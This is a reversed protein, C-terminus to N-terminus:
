AVKVRIKNNAPPAKIALGAMFFIIFLHSLQGTVGIPIELVTPGDSGLYPITMSAPNVLYVDRVTNGSYDASVYSTLGRGRVTNFPVAGVNTTVSTARVGVTTEAQRALQLIRIKDDQQEDFTNAERVDGWLSFGDDIDLTDLIPVLANDVARRFSGSTDPNTAPDLNVADATNFSKRWGDFADEDYAGDENNSTGTPETWNGQAIARQFTKAMALLGGSLELREPNFGAGGALVAFQSKLSVGRRTALIAVNTFARRYVGKDDTVTDLEGIFDAEGVSLQQNFAHVLGNAPEHAIVDVLPFKRVFLEYIIPDLDQRILAAVGNTDIAKAVDPALTDKETLSGFREQTALGGGALWNYLPVGTDRRSAQKAFLLHLERVSKTKLSARIEDMTDRAIIRRSMISQGTPDGDVGDGVTELAKETKQSVPISSPVDNLSNLGAVIAENTESASKYLAALEPSMSHM